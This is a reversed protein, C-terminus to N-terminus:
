PCVGWMQFVTAAEGACAFWRGVFKAAALIEGLEQSERLLPAKGRGLKGEAQVCGDDAVRLQGRTGLFLLAERTFPALEQTRQAYHIRVDANEQLWVHLTTTVARPVRERTERHLVVPLILFVLPLPMGAPRVSAYGEMAERLCWGCFAPNFLYALESPRECWAKM